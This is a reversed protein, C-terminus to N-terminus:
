ITTKKRKPIEIAPECARLNDLMQWCQKPCNEACREFKTDIVTKLNEATKFKASFPSLTLSSRPQAGAQLVTVIV